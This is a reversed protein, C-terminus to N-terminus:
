KAPCHIHRIAHKFHEPVPLKHDIFLQAIEYCYLMRSEGGGVSVNHECQHTMTKSKICTTGIQIDPKVAAQKEDVKCLATREQKLLELEQLRETRSYQYSAEAWEQKRKFDILALRKKTEYETASQDLSEQLQGILADLTSQYVSMEWLIGKRKFNHAEEEEKYPRGVNLNSPRGVRQFFFKLTLEM